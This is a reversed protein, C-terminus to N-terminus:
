GINHYLMLKITYTCLLTTINNLSHKCEIYMYTLLTTAATVLYPNKPTTHWEDLLTGYREKSVENRCDLYVKYSIGRIGQKNLSTKREGKRKKRGELGRAGEGGRERERERKREIITEFM